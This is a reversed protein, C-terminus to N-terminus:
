NGKKIKDLIKNIKENRKSIEYCRKIKQIEEDSIGLPMVPVLDNAITTAYVRRIIPFLIQKDMM